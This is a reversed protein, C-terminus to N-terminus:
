KVLCRKQEEEFPNDIFAYYAQWYAWARCQSVEGAFKGNSKFYVSVMMTDMENKDYYKFVFEFDGVSDKPCWHSNMMIVKGYKKKFYELTLASRQVGGSAYANVDLMRIGINADNAVAVHLLIFIVLFSKM